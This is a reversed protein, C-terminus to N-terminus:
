KPKIIRTARRRIQMISNYVLLIKDGCLTDFEEEQM